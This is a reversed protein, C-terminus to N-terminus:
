ATLELGSQMEHQWQVWGAIMSAQVDYDYHFGQPRTERLFASDSDTPNEQFETLEGEAWELDIGASLSLDNSWSMLVGFSDQGNKELPTGPLFHQLFDM